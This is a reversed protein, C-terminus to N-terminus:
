DWVEGLATNDLLRTTGYRAAAMLLAPGKLRETSDLCELTRPDLLSFYDISDPPETALIKRGHSLLVEPSREGAEWQLATALLARSLVLSRMREAPSLYRNRSSMALGDAERLIPAIVMKVPFDLDEVMRRLVLAQQADKQGFVALDCEVAHFLKAVVSAVGDFHGPRIAGEWTDKWGPVTVLTRYDKPYFDPGPAFVAAVGERGAIALDSDWTRPYREFDEGPGFQTPNVFISLVVTRTRERALRLLSAHGDHLAGMTPVFGISEGLAKRTRSWSRM